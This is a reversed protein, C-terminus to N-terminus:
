ECVAYHRNNQTIVSFTNSKLALQTLSTSALSTVSDASQLTWLIMTKTVGTFGCSALSLEMACRRLRHLCSASRQERYVAASQQREVAQPHADQRPGAQAAARRLHDGAAADAETRQSLGGRHDRDSHRGQTLPLQVMGHVDAVGCCETWTLVHLWYALLGRACM